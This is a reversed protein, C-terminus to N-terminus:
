SFFMFHWRCYGRRLNAVNHRFFSCVLDFGFKGVLGVWFIAGRRLLRGIVFYPADCLCRVYGSFIWM